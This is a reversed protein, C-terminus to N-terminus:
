SRDHTASIDPAKSVDGLTIMFSSRGQRTARRATLDDAGRVPRSKAGAIRLAGRWRTGIGKSGGVVVAVRDKMTIQM